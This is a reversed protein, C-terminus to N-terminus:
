DYDFLSAHKGARGAQLAEGLGVSGDTEVAAGGHGSHKAEQHGGGAYAEDLLAAAAEKGAPQKRCGGSSRTAALPTNCYATHTDPNTTGM